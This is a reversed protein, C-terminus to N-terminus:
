VFQNFAQIRKHLTDAPVLNILDKVGIGHMSGTFMYRLLGYMNKTDLSLKKARETATAILTAKIDEQAINALEQAFHKVTEKDLNKLDDQNYVPEVFYFELSKGADMLTTLEPQVAKILKLLTADDIACIKQGVLQMFPLCRKLLEEPSLRQIWKHNVWRLKDVDYRIPGTSAIHDFNVTAVLQKLDMIEESFSGGQIALYNDIAEPLFGADRLDHLSFGFDRKSLKKGEKNCIISLHWFTPIPYNFAQYLNAQLATNTLHDEGRIVHTIKMLMDDIANTFLFTYSHDPRTLAFDAFHKLDYTVVGRALDTVQLTSDDLKFRWIFPTQAALKQEVEAASLKLCTRDYRPPMKLAMQRQRKKELEEQTCFCRYVRNMSKLKELYDHYITTRESQYYPGYKEHVGPGEDFPLNLWNLDALIQKGRPDFNRQPDTDEIRLVFTGSKQRAFLFNLLAARVNGLHMIGTPSPAFRVRVNREEM